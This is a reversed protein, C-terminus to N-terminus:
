DNLLKEAAQMAETLNKATVEVTRGKAKVRVTATPPRSRLYAPIIGIAAVLGSSGGIATIVDVVGLEGAGPRAPERTVTVGPVRRLRDQLADLDAHDSVSFECRIETQM